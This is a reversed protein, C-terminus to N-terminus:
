NRAVSWEDDLGEIDGQHLPLGVTAPRSIPPSGSLVLAPTHDRL